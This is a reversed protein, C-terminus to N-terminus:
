LVTSPDLYMYAYSEMCHWRVEMNDDLIELFGDDDDNLSSTLSSRRLFVPSSEHLDLLQVAPPSSLQVFLFFYVSLWDGKLAPCSCSCVQLSEETKRVMLAPASSPRRAFADQEDNFSRLRSRSVPKSPKKFEFGGQCFCLFLVPLVFKVHQSSNGFEFDLFSIWNVTNRCGIM